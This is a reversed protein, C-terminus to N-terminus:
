DQRNSLIMNQITQIMNGTDGLGKEQLWKSKFEKNRGAIDYQSKLEDYYIKEAQVIPELESKDAVVKDYEKKALDWTKQREKFQDDTENENKTEPRTTFDYKSKQYELYKNYKELNDANQDQTALIDYSEGYKEVLKQFRPDTQMKAKVEKQYKKIDQSLAAAYEPSGLENSSAQYKLMELQILNSMDAQEKYLKTAKDAYDKKTRYEAYAGATDGLRSLQTSIAADKTAQAQRQIEYNMQMEQNLMQNQAQEETAQIQQNAQNIAQEQQAEQLGVNALTNQAQATVATLGKMLDSAQSVNERLGRYSERGQQRVDARMKDFPTKDMRLRQMHPLDFQINPPPPQIMNNFLGIADAIGKGLYYQEAVGFKKNKPNNEAETKQNKIVNYIAQQQPNTNPQNTALTGTVNNANTQGAVNQGSTTTADTTTGAVNEVMYPYPKINNKDVMSYLDFPKESTNQDIAIIDGVTNIEKPSQITLDSINEEPVSVLNKTGVNMSPYVPGPITTNAKPLVIKSYDITEPNYLISPSMSSLDQIDSINPQPKIYKAAEYQNYPMNSVIPTPSVINADIINNPSILPNTYVQQQNPNSSIQMDYDQPNAAYIVDSIATNSLDNTSGEIDQAMMTNQNPANYLTTFPNIYPNVPATFPSSTIDNITPQESEAQNIAGQVFLEPNIKPETNLAYGRKVDNKADPIDRLIIGKNTRKKREVVPTPNITIPGGYNPTTRQGILNSFEAYGQKKLEQKKEYIGKGQPMQILSQMQLLYPNQEQPFYTVPPNPNNPDETYIM